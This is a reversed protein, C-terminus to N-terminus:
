KDKPEPSIDSIKLQSSDATPGPNSGFITTGATGMVSPLFLLFAAVCIYVMPKSLPVQQPNDKHAKFQLVGAMAFGVGACYSIVILLKVVSLINSQVRSSITYLSQGANDAAFVTSCCLLLITAPFLYKKLKDIHKINKM